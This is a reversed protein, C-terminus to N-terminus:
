LISVVPIGASFVCDTNWSSHSDLQSVTLVIKAYRYIRLVKAPKSAHLEPACYNGDDIGFVIRNSIAQWSIQIM